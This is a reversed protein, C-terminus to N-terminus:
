RIAALVVEKDNQLDVHAYQLARGNQRVAALVVEKDHKLDAHAYQLARGDQSVAALVVEKDNQLDAHAYELARGRQSVAALVVEKDKKLDAHAYQLAGGNQRVAALVVEKDKKLDAHAYQLARGNQRVAALVVEKDNKLDAHAYELAEGDQRVAALVVKKDKQLDAHAYELAEGDQSIAALVVEKDKQLDAHAYQLARGNQRVAALVVEKDNQLDAHAYQLARGNQRVAALVVEKDKKLDEHAYQLAGGRQSVAALVVEKDKKLDEHAYQLAGGNQCVAALVVKKDKQLDAHAYELAEGDQSIAALVVEKDKKLDEHAYQLAGGRQSVAALVFEKDKQLDAHAYKLAEGDQSVAALIVEKDKQLDAHAYQLARGNQRVAALVFEKDKKLDAHAYELARGDQSVAALVFKKDNKLDPHAYELARVDQRAAALVVEKDKKLDAHAYQLALGNQRVAALVVEKDKQLDAHAYQLADVNKRVAALVVEKDKKLDAHAYQLARGNQRVAALVVEKDNQLNAHAYELARGNQSVAALVVEKDKYPYYKLLLGSGSQIGFLLLPRKIRNIIEPDIHKDLSIIVNEFNATNGSMSYEAFYKLLEFVFLMEKFTGLKLRYSLLMPNIKPPSTFAIGKHDLLIQLINGIHGWRQRAEGLFSVGLTCDQSKKDFQIDFTASHNRLPYNYHLVTQNMPFSYGVLQIPLNTTEIACEAQAVIPPLFVRNKMEAGILAQLCALLNQHILTFVDEKTRPLSRSFDTESGLVGASVSFGDSPRLENATKQTNLLQRKLTDLYVHLPFSSSYRLLPRALNKSWGALVKFYRSLMLDFKAIKETEAYTTSGKMRKIAVDFLDVFQGMVQYASIRELCSAADLYAKKKYSEEKLKSYIEMLDRYAGDFRTPDAFSDLNEKLSDMKELTSQLEKLFMKAKETFDATLLRMLDPATKGKAAEPQFFRMMWLPLLNMTRLTVIMEKFPDIDEQSIKGDRYASELDKLFRIWGEEQLPTMMAATDLVEECFLTAFGVSERYALMKEVATFQPELNAVSLRGIAHPAEGQQILAEVAKMHLLAHLRENKGSKLTAKLESLAQAGVTQLKEVGRLLIRARHTDPLDSFQEIRDSLKKQKEILNEFIKHEKLHRFADLSAENSELARMHRLLTKIEQPIGAAEQSSAPLRKDDVSVAIRAPHMAYGESICVEPEAVTKDLLLLHGTQVCAILVKAEQIQNVFEQITESNESYMVPIGMGSFNVVPHSNAPEEERVIVLKHVGRKFLKEATELNGTVLVQSPSHLIQAEALGPLFPEAQMKEGGAGSLLQGVKKLDLYTPKPPPRNVPRAQVPYIVGNKIVLEMDMPQNGYVKEVIVGLYFLRKLMQCDLSPSEAVEIPNPIKDLFVKGGVRVSKKPALREPKYQNDELIYLREPHKVSHLLLYTDSKICAMGVVGEGHGRTASIRMVRFLESGVYNPENSFLVLSTPIEHPKEEGNIKEGILEQNTVALCLPAEFPNEDMNMRNQLSGEGFYSSVVKGCARCVAAPDPEVYAVSLNGGANAANCTDESGTSRSMLYGGKSKIQKLWELIETSLPLDARVSEDVAALKFAVKIANRIQKLAEKVEPQHIFDSEYIKGTKLSKKFQDNLENWTTQIKPAHKKLFLQIASNSIGYPMPVEAGPITIASFIASQEILRAHKYGYEKVLPSIKEVELAIGESLESKWLQLATQIDSNLAKVDQRYRTYRTLSEVTASSTENTNFLNRLSSMEEDIRSQVKELKQILPDAHFKPLLNKLEILNEISAQTKHRTKEALAFATYASKNLREAIAQDEARSHASRMLRQNILPFAETKIDDQKQDVRICQSQISLSNSENIM